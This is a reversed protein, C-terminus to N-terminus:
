KKNNQFHKIKREKIINELCVVNKNNTEEQVEHHEKMKKKDEM